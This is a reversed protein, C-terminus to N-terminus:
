QLDHCYHGSRRAAKVFIPPFEEIGNWAKLLNIRALDVVTKGYVGSCFCSPNQPNSNQLGSIRSPFGTRDFIAEGSQKFVVRNFQGIKQFACREKGKFQEDRLHDALTNSSLLQYLLINKNKDFHRLLLRRHPNSIFESLWILIARPLVQWASQKKKKVADNLAYVEVNSPLVSTWLTKSTDKFHETPVLIVKEFERALFPVEHNLYKEMTGFPYYKTFVFLIKKTM